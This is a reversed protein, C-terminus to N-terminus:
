QLDRLKSKIFTFGLPTVRTNEDILELNFLKRWSKGFCFWTKAPSQAAAIMLEVDRSNVDAITYVKYEKNTTEM